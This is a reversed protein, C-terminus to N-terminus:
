VNQHHTKSFIALVFINKASVFAVKFYFVYVM